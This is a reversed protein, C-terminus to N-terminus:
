PIGLPAVASAEDIRAVRNRRDEHSGVGIIDVPYAGQVVSDNTVKTFRHIFLREYPTEARSERATVRTFV